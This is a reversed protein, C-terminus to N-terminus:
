ARFIVRRGVPCWLPTSVACVDTGPQFIKRLKGGEEDAVFVGEQGHQFGVAQGEPSWTITRDERVSQGCGIGLPLFAGAIALLLLRRLKIRSFRM